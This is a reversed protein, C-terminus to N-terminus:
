TGPMYLLSNQKFYVLGMFLLILIGMIVFGKSGSLYLLLSVAAVGIILPVSVAM